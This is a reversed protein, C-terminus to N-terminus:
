VGARGNLCLSVGDLVGEAILSAGAFMWLLTVTAFPNSIIVIACVASVAASIAPWLWLSSRMRLADAMLQVKCLSVVLMGMGYLVTLAPFTNIFWDSRFAVFGGVLLTLLGKALSQEMAAREASARVYQIVYVVGRLMMLVGVGIIIATTFGIPRFLLLAGILIELLIFVLSRTHKKIFKM